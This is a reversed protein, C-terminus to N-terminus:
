SEAHIGCSQERYEHELLSFQWLSQYSGRWLVRERWTGELTFGLRRLLAASAENGVTVNAEVRHVSLRDFCFHLLASVAESMIGRRWYNHHLEYGIELWRNRADYVHFGCSGIMRESDLLTIAWRIGTKEKFIRDAWEIISWVESDSPTTEFDILYRMVQPSNWIESWAHLDAPMIQRLRLRETHIAPIADFSYKVM